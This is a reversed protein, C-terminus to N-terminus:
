RADGAERILRPLAPLLNEERCAAEHDFRDDRLAELFGRYTAAFPEFEPPDLRHVGQILLPALFHAGCLHFTQDLPALLQRVTFRNLGDPRYAGEGGGTSIVTAFKKGQLQRGGSGYAWGHELVLDLWQKLLAPTSYWFFPFQLVVVDHAVLLEQERRIDVQFDPYAEYLDHLRVQGASAASVTALERLLRKQVRSKELAPHVFVVLVKAM